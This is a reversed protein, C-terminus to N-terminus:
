AKSSRSRTASSRMASSVKVASSRASCRWFEAGAGAARALVPFPPSSKGSTEDSSEPVRARVKAPFEGRCAARRLRRRNGEVNGKRNDKERPGSNASGGCNGSRGQTATRLEAGAGSCNGLGHKAHLFASGASKGNGLPPREAEITLLLLLSALDSLLPASRGPYVMRIQPRSRPRDDAADSGSSNTGAKRAFEAGACSDHSAFWTLRSAITPASGPCGPRPQPTEIVFKSAGRLYSGPRRKEKVFQRHFGYEASLRKNWCV